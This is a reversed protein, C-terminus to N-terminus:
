GGRQLGLLANSTAGPVLAISDSTTCLKRDGRRGGSSSQPEHMTAEEAMCAGSRRALLPKRYIVLLSKGISQFESAARVSEHAGAWKFSPRTGAAGNV